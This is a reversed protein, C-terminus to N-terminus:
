LAITRRNWLSIRQSMDAENAPPPDYNSRGDPVYGPKFFGLIPDFGWELRSFPPPAKPGWAPLTYHGVMDTVAELIQLRVVHEGHIIGTQLIWQAVVHVGELPKKTEADVVWGHIEAASYATPLAAVSSALGFSAVGLALSLVAFRARLLFRM